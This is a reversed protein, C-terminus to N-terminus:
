VDPPDAFVRLTFNVGVSAYIGAQWGHMLVPNIEYVGAHM